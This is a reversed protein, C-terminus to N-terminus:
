HVSVIMWKDHIDFRATIDPAGAAKGLLLREAITGVPRRTHPGQENLDGFFFLDRPAAALGARLLWEAVPRM